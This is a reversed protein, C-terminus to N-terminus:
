DVGEEDRTTGAFEDAANENGVKEESENLAADGSATGTSLSVTDSRLM